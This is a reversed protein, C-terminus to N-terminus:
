SFPKENYILLLLTFANLLLFIFFLYWYLYFVRTFLLTHPTSYNSATARPRSPVMAHGREGRLRMMCLVTFCKEKPKVRVNAGTEDYEISLVTFFSYVDSDEIWYKILVKSSQMGGYTCQIDHDEKLPTRGNAIIRRCLAISLHLCQLMANFATSYIVATSLPVCHLSWLFGTCYILVCKMAPVCRHLFCPATVLPEWELISQHLGSASICTHIESCIFSRTPLFM